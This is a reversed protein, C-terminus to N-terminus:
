TFDKTCRVRKRNTWFCDAVTLAWVHASDHCLGKLRCSDWNILGENNRFKRYYSGLRLSRWWDIIAIKGGSTQFRGIATWVLKRRGLHNSVPLTHWKVNLQVPKPVCKGVTQFVIFNRKEKLDVDFFCLQKTLEGMPSLDTVANGPIPRTIPSLSFCFPKSCADWIKPDNRM